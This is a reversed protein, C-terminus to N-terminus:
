STRPRKTSGEEVSVQEKSGNATEVSGAPGQDSLTAKSAKREAKSKKRAEKAKKSVNSKPDLWPSRCEKLKRQLSQVRLLGVNYCPIVAEVNTLLPLPLNSTTIEYMPHHETSLALVFYRALIPYQVM